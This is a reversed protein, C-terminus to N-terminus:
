INICLYFRKDKVKLCHCTTYFRRRTLDIKRYLTCVTLNTKIEHTVPTALRVFTPYPRRTKRKGSCHWPHNFTGEDRIYDWCKIHYVHNAPLAVSSLTATM